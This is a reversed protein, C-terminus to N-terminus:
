ISFKQPILKEIKKKTLFSEEIEQLGEQTQSISRPDCGVRLRVNGGALVQATQFYTQRRTAFLDRRRAARGATQAGQSSVGVARRAM